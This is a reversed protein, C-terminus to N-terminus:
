DSLKGLIAFFGFVIPMSAGIATLMGRDSNPDKLGVYIATLGFLLLAAGIVEAM